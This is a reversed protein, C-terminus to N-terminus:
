QEEDDPVQILGDDFSSFGKGVRQSRKWKYFVFGGAIGAGAVVAGVVVGGIVYPTKSSEGDKGGKQSKKTTCDNGKWGDACKCDGKVCTGGNQCEKKCGVELCTPGAWGPTCTCINPQDCQGNGNCHDVKDCMAGGCWDGFWGDNCQCKNPATCIGHGGCGFLSSCDPIECTSGTYGTGQCDCNGNVCNGRDSCNYSCKGFCEPVLSYDEFCQYTYENLPLPTNACTLNMTPCGKAYTETLVFDKFYICGRCNAVDFCTATRFSQNFNPASITTEYLTLNVPLGLPSGTLKANIACKEYKLQLCATGYQPILICDDFLPQIQSCDDGFYGDDCVCVEAANCTGHDSCGNKCGQVLCQTLDTSSTMCGLLTSPGSCSNLYVCPHVLGDNGRTLNQLSICYDCGLMRTCVDSSVALDFPKNLITPGHMGGLKVQVSLGCPPVLSILACYQDQCASWIVTDDACLALAFFLFLLSIPKLM